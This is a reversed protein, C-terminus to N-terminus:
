KGTKDERSEPRSLSELVERLDAFRVPKVLHAVFGAQRCRAIDEEMGYGTLAIGRLGYRRRLEEMLQAGTGDPLGLDSVAWDFDGQEAAALADAVNGAAVVQCGARTLLTRLAELTPGHDEVLLLRLGAIAASAQPMGRPAAPSIASTAPEQPSSALGMPPDQAGPLEVTFTAGRQAGESFARIRGGHLSVIARAISLGLGVGGFRHDGTAAGQEFPLFISELQEPSIGLGSDTVEIRLWNEGDPGSEDRTRIGIRGHRPTFKVANRLLNWIVQQFRAPDAVLGSRVAQFDCTLDLERFTAEDRVIEVALRILSHVDCTESRLRLKGQAISTLDLMDDILRAELAINREMMGLLQRADAPLRPDEKLEAATLLVPTLPTRLEHSLVALFEDKARSAREADAQATKLEHIATNTGFWKVIESNKGRMPAARTLHWRYEGDSARRIRIEVSYREGTAMCHRWREAALPLDDPHVFRSWGNVGLVEIARGVGFYDLCEQNVYDIAGDPVAATWVQLSVVEGLLRFRDAADEAALAAAEARSTASILESEVRKRELMTWCREVVTEVLRVEVETWNRPESQHVAMMARLRGSKLLPCCIIAQIGIAQFMGGGEEPSIEANVHRVVLTRGSRMDEEARPGFLSLEYEGVTSACGDTSDQLISFHGTRPEVTAYACRSAKLFTRLLDVTATLIDGANELARTSESLENLFFLRSESLKLQSASQHKETVDHFVLIGGRVRGDMGRIPAASDEIPIERGQRSRLVTHNALGVVKNERLARGVPNEAPQGTHENFIEFVETLPMGQVEAQRWGIMTEAVPNLFTVCGKSDTAVVADGISNLTVHLEEARQRAAALSAQYFGQIEKMVRRIWVALAPIGALAALAFGGLVLGVVLRLRRARERHVRREEKLLANLRDRAADFLPVGRILFEPDRIRETNGRVRKLETDLFSFWAAVAPRLAKAEWTQAPNDVVMDELMKLESLVGARDMGGAHGALYTEDGTLRYGRFSTQMSVLRREISHSISIVQDSHDVRAASRLLYLVLGLLVLVPVALSWAFVQTTRRLRLNFAGHDQLTDSDSATPAASPAKTEMM